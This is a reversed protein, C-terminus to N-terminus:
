INSPLAIKPSTSLFHAIAASMLVYGTFYYFGPLLSATTNTMAGAGLFAVLISVAFVDAM